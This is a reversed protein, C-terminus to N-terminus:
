SLLLTIYGIIICLTEFTMVTPIPYMKEIILTYYKEDEAISPSKCFIKRIDRSKSTTDDMVINIFPPPCIFSVVILM